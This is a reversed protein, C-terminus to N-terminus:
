LNWVYREGTADAAANNFQVLCDLCNKVCIPDNHTDYNAAFDLRQEQMNPGVEGLPQGGERMHIVCPFHWKGAVVSDDRALACRNSDTTKIGRVNLGNLLNNVRYKLIPHADLLEVPIKELHQLMGNWQAATIIRIDSVGLDHAFSLVDVLKDATEPTLVVGVSVYTLESVMKISSVVSDFFGARGAMKNADEACCADLSISFDNVGLEVLEPYLWGYSGNTSIAIREVWGDKAAKILERLRPYACPEGGSFRINKLGNACWDQIAFMAVEFDIHGQCDVSYNEVGRCYPCKFNCASTVIMECRSMHPHKGEAREDSLTYFGIDELKM